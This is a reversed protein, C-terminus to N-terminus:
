CGRVKNILFSVIKKMINKIGYILPIEITVRFLATILVVYWLYRGFRVYNRLYYIQSKLTRAFDRYRNIIKREQHEHNHIYYDTYSIALMKKEKKLKQALINEEHYLFVNEDFYGLKEFIDKKIIFFSGHVAETVAVAKEGPHVRLKKYNNRKMYRELIISNSIFCDLVNPAKWGFYKFHLNDDMLMVASIAAINEDHEIKNILNQFLHRYPIIVDPNMIAIFKINKNQQTAYRIGFNNGKSYGGNEKTQIVTINEMDKYIESLYQISNNNSLNDVVIIDCDYDLELLKDVCKKTLDYKNYNLVIVALSNVQMM